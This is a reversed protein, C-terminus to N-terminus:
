ERVGEGHECGTAERQHVGESHDGRWEFLEEGGERWRRM